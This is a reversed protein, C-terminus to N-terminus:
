IIKITSLKLIEPGSCIRQPSHQMVLKNNFFTCRGIQMDQIASYLSCFTHYKYMQNNM